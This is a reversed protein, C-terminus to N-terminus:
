AAKQPPRSCLSRPVMFVSASFPWFGGTSIMLQQSERTAGSAIKPAPGPSSNTTRLM